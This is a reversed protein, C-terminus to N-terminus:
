QNVIDISYVLINQGAMYFLAGASDIGAFTYVPIDITTKGSPADLHVSGNWNWTGLTVEYYNGSNWQKKCYLGGGDANNNMGFTIRVKYNSYANYDDLTMTVPVSADNPAALGSANSYLNKLSGAVPDSGQTNGSAPNELTVKNIKVNWSSSLYLGNQNKIMSVNDATLTLTIVGNTITTNQNTLSNSNLGSCIIANNWGTVLTIGWNNNDTPAAYIRVISGEKANAFASSGAIETWSKNTEAFGNNIVTENEGIVVEVDDNGKVVETEETYTSNSSVCQEAPVVFASASADGEYLNDNVLNSWPTDGNNNVWGAFNPYAAAIETREKAWRTGVPVQIKHPAEGAYAELKLVETSINVFIPIDYLNEYTQEVTYEIPSRGSIYAAGNVSESGDAENITNVMTTHPVNFLAHVEKGAVTLQYTGGAALIRIKTSTSSSVDQTETDGESERSKLVNNEYTELTRITKTFTTTRFIAADFVVDNYDLDRRSSTSGLDECFIRGQDVIETRTWQETTTVHRKTVTTGAPPPTIESGDAKEAPVIKIIRDDHYGDPAIDGQGGHSEYDFGCYWAKEGDVEIEAYFYDDAYYKGGQASEWYGFGYMTQSNEMYMISGSSTNFNNVHDQQTGGATMNAYIQDMHGNCNFTHSAGNQDVCSYNNNGYYVQQVFFNTFVPASQDGKRHEKYWQSVVEIERQTIDAPKKFNYYNPDFWQNSNTNATRTGATRAGAPGTNTGFGWTQDKAITGYADKFTEQFEVKKAEVISGAFGDDQHCGALIGGLIIAATGVILYKKKTM